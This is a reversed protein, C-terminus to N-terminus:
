VTLSLECYVKCGKVFMVAAQRRGDADYRTVTRVANVKASVGGLPNIVVHFAQLSLKIRGYKKGSFSEEKGGM